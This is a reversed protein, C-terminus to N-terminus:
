GQTRHPIKEWLISLLDSGALTEDCIRSSPPSAWLRLLDGTETGKDRTGPSDWSLPGLHAVTWPTAFLQVRSLSQPLIGQALRAANELPFPVLM